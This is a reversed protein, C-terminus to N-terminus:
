LLEKCIRSVLAKGCRHITFTKEWDTAQRQIKKSTNKFNMSTKTNIFYGFYPSIWHLPTSWAWSILHWESIFIFHPQFAVSESTISRDTTLIEVNSTQCTFPWAPQNQAPCQRRSAAQEKPCKPALRLLGVGLQSLVAGPLRLLSGQQFDGLVM